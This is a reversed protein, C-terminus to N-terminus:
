EQEFRTIEGLAAEAKRVSNGAVHDALRGGMGLRRLVYVTLAVLVLGVFGNLLVLPVTDPKWIDIGYWALSMGLVPIWVFCGVAANVPAEVRVRWARLEALRHQIALVPASLDIRHTLYLVRTGMVILMLGYAQVLLGCALLHPIHIRPIWFAAAWGSILIGLLVQLSQGAFLPLLGRRMRGLRSERFLQRNFLRQEDLRRDIDQWALKMDDLEM